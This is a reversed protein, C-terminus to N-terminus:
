EYTCYTDRNVVYGRPVEVLSPVRQGLRLLQRGRSRRGRKADLTPVLADVHHGDVVVRPEEVVELPVVSPETFIQLRNDTRKTPRSLIELIKYLDYTNTLFRLFLVCVKM